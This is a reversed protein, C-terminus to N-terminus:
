QRPLFSRRLVHRKRIGKFKKRFSVIKWGGRPRSHRPIGEEKRCPFHCGQPMLGEHDRINRVRVKRRWYEIGVILRDIEPCSLRNRCSTGVLNEERHKNESDVAIHQPTAKTSLLFTSSCDARRFHKKDCKCKYMYEIPQRM